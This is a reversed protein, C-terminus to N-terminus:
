GRADVGRPFAAQWRRALSLLDSVPRKVTNGRVIDSGGILKSLVPIRKARELSASTHALWAALSFRRKEARARGEALAVFLRPTTAFFGDPFGGM